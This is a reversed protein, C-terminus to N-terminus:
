NDRQRGALTKRVLVRLEDPSSLPKGIYDSAGLKMAEVASPVTGFGTIVLFPATMGNERWRRLLTLGDGDPLKLDTVVLHFQRKSGARIADAVSGATEVEYGEGKLITELLARFGPDDDVVVIQEM